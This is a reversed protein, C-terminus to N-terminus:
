MSMAIVTNLLLFVAVFDYRIKKKSRLVLVIKEYYCRVCIGFPHSSLMLCGCSCLVGKKSDMFDYM